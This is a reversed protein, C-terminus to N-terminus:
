AFRRWKIESYRAKFSEPIRNAAEGIIELNRVVSDVTKEDSTFGGLDLGSTYREIKEVSEIIDAILLRVPRHSM